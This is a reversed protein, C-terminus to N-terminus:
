LKFAGTPGADYKDQASQQQTKTGEAGVVDGTPTGDVTFKNPLIGTHNVMYSIADDGLTANVIVGGDLEAQSVYGNKSISYWSGTFKKSPFFNADAGGFWGSAKDMENKLVFGELVDTGKCGWYDPAYLPNPSITSLKNIVAYYEFFPFKKIIHLEFGGNDKEGEWDQVMDGIYLLSAGDKVRKCVPRFDFLGTDLWNKSGIDSTWWFQDKLVGGIGQNITYHIVMQANLCNPKNIIQDGNFSIPMCTLGKGKCGSGMCTSGGGGELFYNDGCEMKEQALAEMKIAPDKMKNKDVVEGIKAALAFKSGVSADKCYQPTLKFPRLLFTQPLRLNVLDPNITNLITFSLYAILLGTLAGGIRKKASTIMESNGGSTVWQVGAIVIMIVALIGAFTIALNFNTKLFDGINSFEKKGGFAVETVTVGAPLCMGWGEANCPEQNLWGGKDSKVDKADKNLIAARATDCEAKHWCLPNFEPAVDMTAALSMVPMLLSFFMLGVLFNARM